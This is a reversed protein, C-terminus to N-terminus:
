RRALRAAHTVDRFLRRRQHTLEIIIAELAGRELSLTSPYDARERSSSYQVLARATHRLTDSSVAAGIGHAILTDTELPLTRDRAEGSGGLAIVLHVGGSGLLAPYAALGLRM